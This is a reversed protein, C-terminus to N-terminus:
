YRKNLFDETAKAENLIKLRETVLAPITERVNRNHTTIAANMQNVYNKLFSTRQKIRSAVEDRLEISAVVSKEFEYVESFTNGSTKEPCTGDPASYTLLHQDGEFVWVTTVKNPTDPNIVAHHDRLDLAKVIAGEVLQSILPVPNKGVSEKGLHKITHQVPAMITELYETVIPRKLKPLQM